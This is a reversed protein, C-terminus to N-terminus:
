LEEATSRLDNYLEGLGVLEASPGGDTALANMWLVYAAGDCYQDTQVTTNNFVRAASWIPHTLAVVRPRHYRGDPARAFDFFALTPLPETSTSRLKVVDPTDEEFIHSILPQSTGFSSGVIVEIDFGDEAKQQLARALGEDALDETVIRINSVAGYVGDILLKVLREQPGFHIQFVEDSETPFVMRVDNISKAAASFATLATADTGGFVQVHELAIRDAIDEGQGSFVVVEGAQEDGARTAVAWAARDAVVFSHTMQVLASPWSVDRNLGFDFYAIEGDALRVPVGADLLAVVGPDAARDFDVVVMVEVGRDHAALVADTLAPDSLGPLALRAEETASELVEAFAANVDTVAAERSPTISTFMASTDPASCAALLLPLAAKM